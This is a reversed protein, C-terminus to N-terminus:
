EPDGLMTFNGNEYKNWVLFFLFFDIFSKLPFKNSLQPCLKFFHDRVCGAKIATSIQKRVTLDSLIYEALTCALTM